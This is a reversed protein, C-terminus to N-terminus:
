KLVDKLSNELMMALVFAHGMKREKCLLVDRLSMGLKVHDYGDFDWLWLEHINCFGLLMGWADTMLVTTAYLPIYIRKRAEIYDLGEGDWYSYLPKAGKGMPYRDAWKKAFGQQAWRFYAPTPEGAADVHQPYVKSYQWANEVNQAINGNFEVPGLLFPSLGRGFGKSRTTVNVVCATEPAKDRPGCIRIM